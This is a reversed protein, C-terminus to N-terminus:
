KSVTVTIEQDGFLAGDDARSRIVYTGPQDFTMTVTHRGDKPVPPPQWLPSWPSNAGTRTDEWVKIQQEDFKVGGEGRYVFWSLHLGNRKGVTVRSPPVMGPARLQQALPSNLLAPSINRPLAGLGSPRPKPIGDDTV